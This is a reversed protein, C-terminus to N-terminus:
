RTPENYVFTVSMTVRAPAYESPLPLFRSSALANQAARDLAPTGSSKLMRLASMSGDKEVAFEFDVHGAISGRFIDGALEPPVIWNRYAQNKFDHVWM